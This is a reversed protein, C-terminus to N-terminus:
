QHVPPRGQDNDSRSSACPHDPPLLKVDYIKRVILKTMATNDWGAQYIRKIWEPLKSDPLPPGYFEGEFIVEVPVGDGASEKERNSIILKGLKESNRHDKLEFEVLTRRNSCEPAVIYAGGLGALYVGDVRIIRHEGRKMQEQLECLSSEQKSYVIAPMCFIAFLAFLRGHLLIKKCLSTIGKV